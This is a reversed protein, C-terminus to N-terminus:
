QRGAGDTGVERRRRRRRDAAVRGFRLRRRRSRGVDGAARRLTRCRGRCEPRTTSPRENSPFRRVSRRLAARWDSGALRALRKTAPWPSGRRGAPSSNGVNVGVGGGRALLERRRFEAQGARRVDEIEVLGGHIDGIRGVHEAALPPLDLGIGRKGFILAEFELRGIQRQGRVHHRGSDLFGRQAALDLRRLLDDLGFGVLEDDHAILEIDAGGGAGVHQRLFGLHRRRLRRQRRQLLLELLLVVHQQRQDAM